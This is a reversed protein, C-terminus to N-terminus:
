ERKGHCLHKWSCCISGLAKAVSEHAQACAVEDETSPTASICVSPVRMWGNRGRPYPPRDCSRPTRAKHQLYQLRLISSYMPRNHVLPEAGDSVMADTQWAVQASYPWPGHAGGAGGIEGGVSQEAYGSRERPNSPLKAAYAFLMSRDSSDSAHSCATGAMTVQYLAFASDGTAAYSAHMSQFGIYIVPPTGKEQGFGALESNFSTHM